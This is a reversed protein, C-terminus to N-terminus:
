KQQSYIRGWTFIHRIKTICISYYLSRKRNSAVPKSDRQTESKHFLFHINKEGDGQDQTLLAGVCYDSADTYLTYPKDPDPFALTPAECLLQRLGDCASQCEDSWEFRAHKKTLAVLPSAIKSFDPCFRRYYSAMGIFSRIDRPQLLEKIVRVKEPDAKVGKEGLIFGLYNIEKKLFKCKSM